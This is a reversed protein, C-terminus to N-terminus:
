HVISQLSHQLDRALLLWCPLSVVSEERNLSYM